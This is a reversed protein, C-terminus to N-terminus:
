FDLITTMLWHLLLTLSGLLKERRSAEFETAHYAM